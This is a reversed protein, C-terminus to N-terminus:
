RRRDCPRQWTRDEPARTKENRLTLSASLSGRRCHRAAVCTMRIEAVIGCSTSSIVVFNMLSGTRTSTLRSSSVSSPILCNKTATSRHPRLWQHNCVSVCAVRQAMRVSVISYHPRVPAPLLPLEVFVNTRWKGGFTCEKLKKAKNEGLWLGMHIVCKWICGWCLGEAPFPRFSLSATTM